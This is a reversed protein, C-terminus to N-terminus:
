MTPPAEGPAAVSPAADIGPAAMEGVAVITGGARAISDIVPEFISKDVKKDCRLVVLKADPGERGALLAELSDAIDTTGTKAGQLYVDGKEDIIVSIKGEKVNKIDTSEPSEYKIGSEKIFNSCLIFFILLLSAIDGMSTLPITVSKSRRNPMKM